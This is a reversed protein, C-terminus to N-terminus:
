IKVIAYIQINNLNPSGDPNPGTPIGAAQVDEIIKATTNYASLGTRKLSLCKLIPAPLVNLPTKGSDMTDSIKKVVTSINM